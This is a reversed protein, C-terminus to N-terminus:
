AGPPEDAGDSEPSEPFVAAKRIKIFELLSFVAFFLAAGVFLAFIAWSGWGPIPSEGALSGSLIRWGLRVIYGSVVLRLVLSTGARGVMVMDYSKRKKM